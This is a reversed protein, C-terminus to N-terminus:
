ETYLLVRGNFINSVPTNVCQHILVIHRLKVQHYLHKIMIHCHGFSGERLETIGSMYNLHEPHYHIFGQSSFVFPQIIKGHFSKLAVSFNRPIINVSAQEPTKLVNVQIDPLNVLDKPFLSFQKDSCHVHYLMSSIWPSEAPKFFGIIIHHLIIRQLLVSERQPVKASVPLHGENFLIFSNFVIVM